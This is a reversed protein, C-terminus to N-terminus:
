ILAIMKIFKPNLMSLLRTMYGSCLKNKPPYIIPGFTDIIM